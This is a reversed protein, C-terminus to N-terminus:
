ERDLVPKGIGEFMAARVRQNFVCFMGAFTGPPPM